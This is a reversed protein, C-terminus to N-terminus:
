CCCEDASLLLCFSRQLHVRLDPSVSNAAALGAGSVVFADQPAAILAETAADLSRAAAADMLPAGSADLLTLELPPSRPALCRSLALAAKWLPMRSVLTGGDLKPMEHQKLGSCAMSRWQLTPVRRMEEASTMLLMKLEAHDRFRRTERPPIGEAGGSALLPFM